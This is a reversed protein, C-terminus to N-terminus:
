NGSEMAACGIFKEGYFFLCGILLPMEQHNDSFLQFDKSFLALNIRHGIRFGPEGLWM